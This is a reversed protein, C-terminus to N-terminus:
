GDYAGVGLGRIEIALDEGVRDEERRIKPSFIVSQCTTHMVPILISTPTTDRWAFSRLPYYKVVVATSSSRRRVLAGLTTFSIRM